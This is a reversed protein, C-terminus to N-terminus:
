NMPWCGNSLIIKLINPVNLLICSISVGRNGVIALFCNLYFVLLAARHDSDFAPLNSYTWFVLSQLQLSLEESKNAFSESLPDRTFYNNVCTSKIVGSPCM